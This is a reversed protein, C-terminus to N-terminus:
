LKYEKKYTVLLDELMDIVDDESIEKAKISKDILKMCSKVLNGHAKNFAPSYQEQIYEQLNLM